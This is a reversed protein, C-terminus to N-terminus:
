KLGGIALRAADRSSQDKLGAAALAIDVDCPLAHHKPERDGRDRAFGCCPCCADGDAPIGEHVTGSWEVDLLARVLVPAAAALTARKQAHAEDDGLVTLVCEHGDDGDGGGRINAVLDAVDRTCVSAGHRNKSPGNSPGEYSYPKWTELYPAIM